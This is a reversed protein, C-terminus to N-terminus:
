ENGAALYRELEAKSPESIECLEAECWGQDWWESRFGSQYPNVGRGLCHQHDQFGQRVYKNARRATSVKPLNFVIASM